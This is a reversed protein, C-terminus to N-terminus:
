DILKFAVRGYPDIAGWELVDEDAGLPRIFRGDVYCNNGTTGVAEIFFYAFGIVKVPKSGNIDIWNYQIPPGPNVIIPCVIIRHCAPDTIDVSGDAHLQTVQSFSHTDGGIWENLEKQVTNGNVGTKTNYIGGIYVPNPVGGNSLAWKIDNNGYHGGPPDTLALFQFNGSQGQQAPQKLRVTQNYVYGFPATGSPEKSMIGFPMVGSGMVSPSAVVATAKAGVPASDIGLFRAFYLGRATDVVEAKISDNASYKSMVTFKLDDAISGNIAAYNQAQAVAAAPSGPLEQVGALAAADAATQLHRRETYLVGADVVIAAFGLLAVISVVMIAAVAGDDGRFSWKM